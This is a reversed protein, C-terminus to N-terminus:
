LKVGFALDGADGLGPVIYSEATLTEDIAGVWFETDSPFAKQVKELALPTAIAVIVIIKKPEGIEKLAELVALMSNGTALMPDSLICIRDHLSPSALYEVHIDFDEPTTHKRYASIYGNDARDFVRLLGNHM